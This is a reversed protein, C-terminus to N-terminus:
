IRVSAIFFSYRELSYDRLHESQERTVVEVIVLM